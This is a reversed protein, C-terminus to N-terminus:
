LLTSMAPIEYKDIKDSLGGEVDTTDGEWMDYLPTYGLNVDPFDDPSIDPM